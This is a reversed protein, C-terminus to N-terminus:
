SPQLVHGVAFLFFVFYHIILSWRNKDEVNYIYIHILTENRRYLFLKLVNFIINIQSTM